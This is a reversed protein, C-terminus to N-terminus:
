VDRRCAFHQRAMRRLGQRTQAKRGDGLRAERLDPVLGRSERTEAAGRPHGLGAARALPALDVPATAAALGERQGAVGGAGIGGARQGWIVLQERGSAALGLLRPGIEDIALM